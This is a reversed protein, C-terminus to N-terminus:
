SRMGEGEEQGQEEEEGGDDDDIAKFMHDFMSVYDHICM